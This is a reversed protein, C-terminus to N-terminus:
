LLQKLYNKYIDIKTRQIEGMCDKLDLPHFKFNKKLFDLEEKSFDTLYYWNFQKTKITKIAM